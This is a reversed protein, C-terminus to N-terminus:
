SPETGEPTHSHAPRTVGPVTGGVDIARRYLADVECPAVTYGTRTYRARTVFPQGDPTLGTKAHQLASRVRNQAQRHAAKASALADYTTQYEEVLDWPLTTAADEDVDDFLRALAAETTPHEDVPPPIGAALSQMFAEAIVFWGAMVRRVHDDYPVPHITLRKGALRVLYGMPADLVECQALLQVRHHDPVDPTGTKGWGRGGEDSKCEVPMLRGGTRHALEEDTAVEYALYDPTALMWPRHPHQYLGADPRVVHLDVKEAFLDAIVPELAKGIHMNETQPLDWGERKAWWLGFPSQYPSVGLVAALESAGIGQRRAALWDAEPADAPLLAVAPPRM